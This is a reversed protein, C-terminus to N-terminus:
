VKLSVGCPIIMYSSSPKLTSLFSQCLTTLLNFAPHKIYMRDSSM